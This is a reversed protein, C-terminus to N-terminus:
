KTMINELGLNAGEISGGRTPLARFEAHCLLSYATM